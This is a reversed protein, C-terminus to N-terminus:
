SSGGGHPPGSPGWLNITVGSYGEVHLETLGVRENTQNNDYVCQEFAKTSNIEIDAYSGEWVLGKDSQAWFYWYNSYDSIDGNFVTVSGGPGASYWGEKTYSYPCNEDYYVFIVWITDDPVHNAFTLGM